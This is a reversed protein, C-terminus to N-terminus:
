AVERQARRHKATVVYLAFVDELDPWRPIDGAIHIAWVIQNNDAVFSPVADAPIVVSGTGEAIERPDDTHAIRIREFVHTDTTTDTGRRYTARECGLLEIKLARIRSASGVIKWRIALTDGLAPLGESVYLEIRPNFIALFLYSAYAVLGAGVLVFMGSFVAFFAEDSSVASTFVLLVIANWVLTFLGMVLFDKIRSSGAEIKTSPLQNTTAPADRFPHGEV